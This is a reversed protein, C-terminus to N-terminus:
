ILHIIIRVPSKTEGIAKVQVDIFNQSASARVHHSCWLWMCTSGPGPVLQLNKKCYSLSPLLEAALSSSRFPFFFLKMIQNVTFSSMENQNKQVYISPRPPLRGCSELYLKVVHLKVSLKSKGFPWPCMLRKCPESWVPGHAQLPDREVGSPRRPRLPAEGVAASRSQRALFGAGAKESTCDKVGTGFCKEGFVLM